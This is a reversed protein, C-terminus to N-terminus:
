INVLVSDVLDFNKRKGKEVHIILNNCCYALPADLINWVPAVSGLSAPFLRNNPWNGGSFQLFNRFDPTSPSPRGRHRTPVAVTLRSSLTFM